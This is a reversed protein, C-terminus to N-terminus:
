PRPLTTTTTRCAALAAAVDDGPAAALVVRFVRAGACDREGPESWCAHTRPDQCVTTVAPLAQAPADESRAPGPLPDLKPAHPAPEAGATAYLVLLAVAAALRLGM